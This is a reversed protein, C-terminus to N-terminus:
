NNQEIGTEVIVSEPIKFVYRADNPQLTYSVGNLTRTLTEERGPEKNLRRLDEWRLGRFLLEKRRELLINSLLEETDSIEWQKFTNPAYRNALLRNMDALAIDTYGLRTASEARILFMENVSIGGFLGFKGHYVGRFTFYGNSDELFFVSKRLDDNDFLNYLATDVIAYPAMNGLFLPQMDSDHLVEENNLLIPFALLTDLTNYDILKDYLQLCDNSYKYSSEYDAMSLYCRALLGIAAPRSPTLKISPLNPRLLKIAEKLDEIIQKYTEGLTSRVISAEIDSRLKIPVGLAQDNIGPTYPECFQVALNYHSRARFFLAAGKIDNFEEQEDIRPSIKELCELVINSYFIQKYPSGWFMEVLYPLYTTNKWTYVEDDFQDITSFMEDTILYEDVALSVLMRNEKRMTFSDNLLRRADKLSTPILLSIDRKEALWDNNCGTIFVLIVLLIKKYMKRVDM